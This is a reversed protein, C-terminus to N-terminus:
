MLLKFRANGGRDTWKKFQNNRELEELQEKWHDTIRALEHETAGMTRTLLYILERNIATEPM